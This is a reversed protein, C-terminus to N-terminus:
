NGGTSLDGMANLENALDIDVNHFTKATAYLLHAMWQYRTQIVNKAQRSAEDADALAAAIPSDRLAKVCDAAYLHPVKAVDKVDDAVFELSKAAATLTVLNIEM